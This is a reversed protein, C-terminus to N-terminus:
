EGPDNREEPRFRPLSSSCRGFGYAADNFVSFFEVGVFFIINSDFWIAVAMGVATM